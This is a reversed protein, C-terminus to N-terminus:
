SRYVLFYIFLIFIDKKLYYVKIYPVKMSIILFDENQKVEFKPTIM